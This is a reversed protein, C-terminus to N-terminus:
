PAKSVRRTVQKTIEPIFVEQTRPPTIITKHSTTKMIAPTRRYQPHSKTGYLTMTAPQVIETGYEIKYTAPITITKTTAEHIVITETVLEYDQSHTEAQCACLLVAAICISRKLVPKLM